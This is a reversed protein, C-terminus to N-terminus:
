LDKQLMSLEARRDPMVTKVLLQSAQPLVAAPLAVFCSELTFTHCACRLTRQQTANGCTRRVRDLAEQVVAISLDQQLANEVDERWEVKARKREKLSCGEGLAAKTAAWSELDDEDCREQAAPHCTRAVFVCFNLFAFHFSESSELEASAERSVRYAEDAKLGLQELLDCRRAQIHPAFATGWVKGSLPRKQGAEANAGAAAPCAAHAAAQADIDGDTVDELGHAATADHLEAGPTDLQAQARRRRQKADHAAPQAEASVHQSDDLAAAVPALQADALEASVDDELGDAAAQALGHAAAGGASQTAHHRLRKRQTRNSLAARSSTSRGAADAGASDNSTAGSGGSISEFDSEAGLAEPDSAADDVLLRKVQEPLDAEATGRKLAWHQPGHLCTVHAWSYGEFAQGGADHFQQTRRAHEQAANQAHARAIRHMGKDVSHECHFCHGDKGAQM